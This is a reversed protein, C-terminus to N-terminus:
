EGSKISLPRGFSGVTQWTAGAFADMTQGIELLVDAASAGTLPAGMEQALRHLIDLDPLADGLPPIAAHFRQVRNQVNTFTGEKEAYVASPLQIDALAATFHDWPGQFVVCDM